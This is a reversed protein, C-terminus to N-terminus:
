EEYPEVYIEVEHGKVIPDYKNNWLSKYATYVKEALEEQNPYVSLDAFIHLDIDSQDTYNYSANSGIIRVDKIDLKIGDQELNEKFRDVIELLKNKVEPDLEDGNFIKQNLTDHKEVSENTNNENLGKIYVWTGISSTRWANYGAEQLARCAWRADAYGRDGSFHIRLEDGVREFSAGKYNIKNKDLLRKIDEVTFSDKKSKKKYPEGIGKIYKVAEERTEFEKDAVYSGNYREGTVRYGLPLKNINFTILHGGIVRDYTNASEDLSEISEDAVSHRNINMNEGFAGFTGWSGIPTGKPNKNEEWNIGNIDFSEDQEINSYFIQYYNDEESLEVESYNDELISVAINAETKDNFYITGSENEFNQTEVIIKEAITNYNNNIDNYLEEILLAHKM